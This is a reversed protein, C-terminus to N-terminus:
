SAQHAKNLAEITRLAVNVIKYVDINYHNYLSVLTLSMHEEAEEDTAYPLRGAQNNELVVYTMAAFREKAEQWSTWRGAVDAECAVPKILEQLLVKADRMACWHCIEVRSLFNFLLVFLSNEYFGSEVEAETPQEKLLKEAGQILERISSRSLEITTQTSSM